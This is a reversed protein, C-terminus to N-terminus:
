QHLWLWLLYSVTIYRDSKDVLQHLRVTLFHRWKVAKEMLPISFIFQLKIYYLQIVLAGQRHERNGRQNISQNITKHKVGYRCYELWTVATKASVNNWILYQYLMKARDDGGNRLSSPIRTTVDHNHKQVNSISCKTDM